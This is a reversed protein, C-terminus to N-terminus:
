TKNVGYIRFTGSTINGSSMLFRVANYANTTGVYQGLLNHLAGTGANNTRAFQGTMYKHRGSSPNWLHLQGSFSRSGVNSLISGVLMYDSATDGATSEVGGNTVQHLGYTYDSAGTKYSTGNDESVLMRLDVGDSAPVIDILDVAYHEYTSSILSELDVTASASAAVEGLLIMGLGATTVGSAGHEHDRVNDEIQQVQAATLVQGVSFTQYSYAFRPFPLSPRLAFPMRM